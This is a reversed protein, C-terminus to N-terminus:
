KDDLYWKNETFNDNLIGLATLLALFCNVIDSYNKPLINVYGFSQITLVLMASLSLWFGRNRLRKKLYNKM